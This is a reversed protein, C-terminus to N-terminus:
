GVGFRFGLGFGFGFALGLALLFALLFALLVSVRVRVSVRIRPHSAAQMDGIMTTAVDVAEEACGFNDPGLAVPAVSSLM